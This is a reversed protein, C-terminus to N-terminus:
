ASVTSLRVKIAFSIRGRSFSYLCGTSALAAAYSTFARRVKVQRTRLLAGARFIWQPFGLGARTEFSLSPGPRGAHNSVSAAAGLQRTSPSRVM